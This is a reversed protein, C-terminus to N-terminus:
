TCVLLAHDLEGVVVRKLATTFELLVAPEVVFSVRLAHDLGERIDRALRVQVLVHGRLGHSAATIGLHERDLVDDETWMGGAIEVPRRLPFQALEDAFVSVRDPTFYAPGNGGFGESSVEAFMAVLWEDDPEIRTKLWNPGYQRAIPIAM